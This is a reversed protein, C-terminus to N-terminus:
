MKMLSIAERLKTLSQFAKNKNQIMITVSLADIISLEGIRSSLAESRYETEESSTFFVVDSEKAIPSKPYGTIGIIKVGNKKAVNLINITDITSGTHSIIIAVDKNTLQSASMLQIHADFNSHCKIGARMFKHYADMAIISSGGVGFFAVHEANLIFRVAQKIAQEDLLHVTRKLTNMNSQFVKKAITIEDDTENIIEEYIPQNPQNIEAALAIKMAQFGKYGIRKCFRFVTADAVHLNEALDNITQQIVLQPQNLIYDAIKKEKDSLRAYHSRIKNLCNSEM